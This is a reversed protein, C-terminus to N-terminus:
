LDGQLVILRRVRDTIMVTGAIKLEFGAASLEAPIYVYVEGAEFLAMAPRGGSTEVARFVVKGGKEEESQSTKRPARAAKGGNGPSHLRGVSGPRAKLGVAKSSSM